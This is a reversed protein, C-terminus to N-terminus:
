QVQCIEFVTVTFNSEPLDEPHFAVSLVAKEERACETERCCSFQHSRLYDMRCHKDSFFSYLSDAASLSAM